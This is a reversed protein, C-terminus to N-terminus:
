FPFNRRKSSGRVSWERRVCSSKGKVPTLVFAFGDNARLAMDRTFRGNAVTVTGSFVPAGSSLANLAAVQARTM